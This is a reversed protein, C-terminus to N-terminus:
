IESKWLSTSELSSVLGNEGLLKKVTECFIGKNTTKPGLTVFDGGGWFDHFFQGRASEPQGSM